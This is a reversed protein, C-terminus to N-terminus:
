LSNSFNASHLDTLWDSAMNKLDYQALRFRVHLFQNKMIAVCEFHLCLSFLLFGAFSVSIECYM